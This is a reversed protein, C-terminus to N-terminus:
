TERLQHGFRPMSLAYQLTKDAYSYDPGRASNVCVDLCYFRSFRLM